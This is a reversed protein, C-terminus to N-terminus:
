RLLPAAASAAEALPALLTRVLARATDSRGLLDAAAPGSRYYLDTAASAFASRPRVADRVARLAAVRPELASGYAATAVFCGSLQTFKQRPTMIEAVAYPGAANCGDVARIAVWYRTEPLMGGFRVEVRTGPPNGVPVVLAETHIKAAVAPNARLFTVPDGPTIPEDIYRVEYRAIARESRPVTFRLVGWEHVHKDELVPTAAVGAPEEPAAMGACFQPDKIDIKFRYDRPAILRLRDAGSGAALQPDNTILGDLPHMVGGDEGFGHVSGYGAPVATSFAQPPGLVFPVRFVVSPQGRYPYGYSMAWHDWKGAPLQPTRMTDPSFNANYDGEVNVELFAVYDGDQWDDPVTFLISQEADAPPTAMSVADIDPMVQRVHDSLTVADSHDICGLGCGAGDRRPPYLSILDMPRMSAAGALEVPESYGAAVDAETLYRGKDSQFANASACTVADLGSRRTPDPDFGLCFYPEHSSDSVCGANSAYGESCRDQFIVRKFQAAGPAAARRHAWVPLVGERRGYPWRYGSNMQSAGPRNGIGRLGVAQTLRVTKLFKGEADEIWLAVQTRATPTFLIEIMRPPEAAAATGAFGAGLAAAGAVALV